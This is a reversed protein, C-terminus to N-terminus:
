PLTLAELVPQDAPALELADIDQPFEWRLQQGEMACPTGHWTPVRLAELRIRKHADSWPVTLISQLPGDIRVDLEEDLERRLADFVSEGPELKGGPFEWAGALHAGPPRQALLLRGEGDELIGAVVHIVRPAKPNPSM